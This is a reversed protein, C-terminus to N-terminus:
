QWPLLRGAFAYVHRLRLTVGDVDRVLRRVGEWRIPRLSLALIFGRGVTGPRALVLTLWCRGGEFGTWRL